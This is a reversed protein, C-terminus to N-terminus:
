GKSVIEGANIKEATQYADYISFIWIIFYTAFGILFPFLAASFLALVILILGKMIQGNYIQGLGPIVFSAVAALISNKIEVPRAPEKVVESATQPADCEPCFGVEKQIIKGCAPCFKEDLGLKREVAM